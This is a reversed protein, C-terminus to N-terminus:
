RHGGVECGFRAPFRSTSDYDNHDNHNFDVGARPPVSKKAAKYVCEVSRVTKHEGKWKGHVKVRVTESKKETEKAYHAKCSKAKGLPYSPHSSAGAGPALSVGFLAIAAIATALLVSSRRM